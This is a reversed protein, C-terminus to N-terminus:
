PKAICGITTDYYSRYMLAFCGNYYEGMGGSRNLKHYIASNIATDGNLYYDYNDTPFIPSTQTCYSMYVANTGWWANSDPFPHYVNFQAKAFFASIFVLFSLLLKKM